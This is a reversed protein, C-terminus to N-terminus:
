CSFSLFHFFHRHRIKGGSVGGQMCEIEEQKRRKLVNKFETTMTHHM